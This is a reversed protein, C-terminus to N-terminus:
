DRAAARNCREGYEVATSNQQRARCGPHKLQPVDCSTVTSFSIGACEASIVVTSPMRSSRLGQRRGEFVTRHPEPRKLGPFLKTPKIRLRPHTRM